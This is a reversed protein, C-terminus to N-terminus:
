QLQNCFVLINIFLLFKYYIISVTSKRNAPGSGTEAGGETPNLARPDGGSRPDRGEVDPKAREYHTQRRVSIGLPIQRTAGGTERRGGDIYCVTRREVVVRKGVGKGEKQKVSAMGDNASTAGALQFNQARACGAEGSASNRNPTPRTRRTV